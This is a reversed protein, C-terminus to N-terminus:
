VRGTPLDKAAPYGYASEASRVARVVAESVMEAALTGVLEQDARVSGVSVAYVSDGDVSTHVPRITRALGDHGMGAIKCLAAKEFVANTAVVALTTNGVFRNEVTQISAAM